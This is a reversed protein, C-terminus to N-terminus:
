LAARSLKSGRYSIGGSREDARALAVVGVIRDLRENRREGENGEPESLDGARLGRAEDVVGEALEPELGVRCRRQDVLEFTRLDM